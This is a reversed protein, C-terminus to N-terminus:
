LEQFAPYLVMTSHLYTCVCVCVENRTIQIHFTNFQHKSPNFLSMKKETHLRCLSTSNVSCIGIINTRPTSHRSHPTNATDPGPPTSPIRSTTYNCILIISVYGNREGVCDNPCSKKFCLSSM